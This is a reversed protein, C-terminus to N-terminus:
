TRLNLVVVPQENPIVLAECCDDTLIARHSAELGETGCINVVVLLSLKLCIGSM